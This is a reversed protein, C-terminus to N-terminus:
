ENWPGRRKWDIARLRPRRGTSGDWDVEFGQGTLAGCIAQGVAVSAETEGDTAGFGFDIGYGGVGRELDQFTYFCFGIVGSRAEGRREYEECCVAFGDTQTFGVNQLAIIKGRELEAFAQDLKDCDTREPWAKEAERKVRLESDVIRALEAPAISEGEGEADEGLMELIRSRQYFGSWIYIRLREDLYEGLLSM